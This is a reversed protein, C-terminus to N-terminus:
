EPPEVAEFEKLIALLEQLKRELKILQAELAILRDEPRETFLLDGFLEPSSSTNTGQWILYADWNGRDDDDHIGVTFGMVTGSIPGGLMLKEVPVAIEMNYGGPYTSIGVTIDSTLVGRDTQRGDVVITYQHDDWGWPYEDNLGDLGIEVSDDRWVDTSDGGIVVDDTVEIALYVWRQDWASRIVSNLDDLSDVRGSFRYANNRNLEISEADPWDSLHGDITPATILRMSHLSGVTAASYIPDSHIIITPSPGTAATRFLRMGLVVAGIVAVGVVLSSKKM